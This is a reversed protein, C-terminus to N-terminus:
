IITPQVTTSFGLSTARCSREPVTIILEVAPAASAGKPPYLCLPFARSHPLDPISSYSTVFCMAPTFAGFDFIHLPWDPQCLIVAACSTTSSLAPGYIKTAALLAHLRKM